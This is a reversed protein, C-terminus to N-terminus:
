VLGEGRGVNRNIGVHNELTHKGDDGRGENRAGKGFPDTEPGEAQETDEPYGEDVTGECVHNPSKVPEVGDRYVEVFSQTTGSNSNQSLHPGKVKGSTGHNM